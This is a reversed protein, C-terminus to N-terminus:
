AARTEELELREYLVMRVFSSLNIGLRNAVEQLHEKKETPMKIVIQEDM